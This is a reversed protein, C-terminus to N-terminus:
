RELLARLAALPDFGLLGSVDKGTMKAVRVRLGDLFPNVIALPAIRETLIRLGRLAYRVGDFGLAIGVAGPMPAIVVDRVGVARSWAGPRGDTQLARFTELEAFCGFGLPAYRDEVARAVHRYDRRWDGSLLGLEPRLEEPGALVDFANGRRRAVFSTWLEGADFLGLAIARGDPCLADLTRHVVPPSPVPLGRLRQPWMAIAGEDIMERVLGVLLLSQATLDDGMRARAGFREMVEDLAGLRMGLAWAVNHIRAVQELASQQGTRLALARSEAEAAPALASAPDLRGRRSHVLKLLEGDEHVVFVGGQPRKPERDPTSRPQWLRLFRMWDETTWGEFSVDATLVIARSCLLRM